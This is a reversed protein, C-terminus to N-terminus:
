LKEFAKIYIKSNAYVKNEVPDFFLIEKDCFYDMADKEEKTEIESFGTKLINRIISKFPEILYERNLKMLELFCFKIENKTIEAERELYEKISNFYKYNDM